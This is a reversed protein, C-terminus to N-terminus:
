FGFPLFLKFLLLLLLLRLWRLWFTPKKAPPM